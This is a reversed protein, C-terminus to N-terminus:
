ERPQIGLWAEAEDYKYFVKTTNSENKAADSMLGFMKAFGFGRERAVVIAHRSPPDKDGFWIAFQAVDKSEITSSAQRFDSIMPMRRRYDRHAWEKICSDKIEAMDVKGSWVERVVGAATDIEFSFPM